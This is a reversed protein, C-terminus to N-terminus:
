CLRVCTERSLSVLLAPRGLLPIPGGIAHFAVIVCTIWAQIALCERSTFSRSEVHVIVRACSQSLTQIREPLVIEKRDGWEAGKAFVLDCVQFSDWLIFTNPCNLSPHEGFPM